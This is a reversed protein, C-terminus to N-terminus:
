QRRSPRLEPKVQQDAPLKANQEAAIREARSEAKQLVDEIQEWLPTFQQVERLKLGRADVAFTAAPLELGTALSVVELQQLVEDGRQQVVELLARDQNRVFLTVQDALPLAPDDADLGPKRRGTLWIGPEAGRRDRSADVAFTFHRRLEVVMAAGLPSQARPDAMGPLHDARLVRGAWELDQVIKPEIRVFVEGFLPDDEHILIGAATQASEVRGRIGDGTAFEFVTHVASQTGRLVHLVGQTTVEFGDVMTQRTRLEVRVSTVAQEAATMAAVLADIPDTQPTAAAGGTAAQAVSAAGLLLPFLRSGLSTRKM